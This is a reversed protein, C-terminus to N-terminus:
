GWCNSLGFATDKSQLGPVPKDTILESGTDHFGSPKTGTKAFSVVADVGSQAMKKPFQMVTAVYKGSKVDQVGQCGGDISGIVVKGALGKAALATYAGRATPENITYVANVDTSRQLLNETAQQALNQDGNANASGVIEPSGNTLGMGKLFGDHRQTDVAAGPTGDIMLVKPAAGNLATKVYTGQKQGAGLNDTAWTADVADKPDTETDLAIVTIGRDKAQKIAGIVGGSNSPTILIGKVGQQVLNEVAAVQGENDGDFKGALAILQAGQRDAEQKAAERLTVFYPNTDTKTVLGVKVPGAGGGAPGGTRQASCGAVALAAVALAVVSGRVLGVSIVTSGRV